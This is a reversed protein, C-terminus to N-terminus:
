GPAATRLPAGVTTLTRATLQELRSYIRLEDSDVTDILGAITAKYADFRDPL